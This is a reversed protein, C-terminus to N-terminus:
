EVYPDLWTTFAWATSTTQAKLELTKAGAIAVDCVAADGIKKLPQSTWVLKGDALVSFVIPQRPQQQKDGHFPSEPITVVAAFRKFQGPLKYEAKAIKATPEPVMFIAHKPPVGNIRMAALVRHDNKYFADEGEHKLVHVATEDLDAIFVRNSKAPAPQDKAADGTVRYITAQNLFMGDRSRTVTRQELDVTYTTGNETWVYKQGENNVPWRGNGKVVVFRGADGVLTFTWDAGQPGRALITMKAEAPQDKVAEGLFQPLDPDSEEIITGELGVAGISVSSQRSDWHDYVIKIKTPHDAIDEKIQIQSSNRNRQIHLVNGRRAIVLGINQVFAQGKLEIKEGCVQINAAGFQELRLTTRFTFDGTFMFRTSIWKGRNGHLRMGNNEIRWGDDSLSWLEKVAQENPFQLTTNIKKPATPREAPKPAAVPRIEAQVGIREEARAKSLGALAPLARRYWMSAHSQITQKSRGECEESRAWWEDGLKLADPKEALEAEALKKLEEDSGLVVMLLGNDWDGKIFCQYRGVLFNAEPDTPATKLKEFAEQVTQYETEIEELEKGQAVVQKVLEASRAQRASNLAVANLTKALDFRDQSVADDFTSQLTPALDQHQKPFKIAKVAKTLVDAKVALIDLEHLSATEEVAALATDADGADAAIDRALRFLVYRGTPDDKSDKGVQLMKKALASKQEPTKAADYEAKYLNAILSVAEKQAEDDPVPLKDSNETAWTASAGLILWTLVPNAWSHSRRFM